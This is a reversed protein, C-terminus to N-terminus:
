RDMLATSPNFGRAKYLSMIKLLSKILNPESRSTVYEITTFKIKHSINTVFPLGNVFMIDAAMTVDKNFDLITRPIEVYDAVIPDQTNRVTEERLTAIDDGFLKHANDIDTPTVNCNNIMNSRVMNKFDRPSPYGVLGLARRASKARNFERETFGEKNQKVTNVLVVARNTTDHYYIGSKSASFIVDKDPKSVVFQDGSASDYRVPFTKSMLSMSLINAIGDENFWVTGYNRLTAVHRVVKTGANCHVKLSGSSLRINSVLKRNCFIDSTSGTDLFIWNPNVHWQSQHFSFEEVSEYGDPPEALVLQQLAETVVEAGGPANDTDNNPCYNAFHGKKQCRFCRINTLNRKEKTVDVTAFAVGESDNIIRATSQASVRYNILLNYAATINVPYNNHGM